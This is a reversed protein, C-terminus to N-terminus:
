EAHLRELADEMLENHQQVGFWPDVGEWGGFKDERERLFLIVREGKKVFALRERKDIEPHIASVGLGDKLENEKVSGKMIKTIKLRFSYRIVSADMFTMRPGETIEGSVVLSSKSLYYRLTDDGDDAFLAASPVILM